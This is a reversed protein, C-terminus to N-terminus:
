QGSDTMGGGVGLAEPSVLLPLSNGYWFFWPMKSNANADRAYAETIHYSVCASQLEKYNVTAGGTIQGDFRTEIGYALYMENIAAKSADNFLIRCVNRIEELDNGNLSLDMKGTGNIYTNTIPVNNVSTLEYPTPTLDEKKPVYPRETENGTAPDREGVKQTPDFEEFGILKLFYLAYMEDGIKRVERIRYNDRVTPDLDESLKRAVFPIPYFANYDTAKHQYVRRGELGNADTGICRSGGIGIGYYALTFDKGNKRGISEDALIGYQENLTTNKPIDVTRGTTCAANIIIGMGNPSVLQNPLKQSDRGANSSDAM